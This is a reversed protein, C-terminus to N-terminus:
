EFKNGFQSLGVVKYEYDNDLAWRRFFDTMSITYVIAVCDWESDPNEKIFFAYTYPGNLVDYMRELIVWENEINSM